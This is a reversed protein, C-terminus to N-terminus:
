DKDECKFFLLASYLLKSQPPPVWVVGYQTAFASLAKSQSYVLEEFEAKDYSEVIKVKTRTTM